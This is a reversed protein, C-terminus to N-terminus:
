SYKDTIESRWKLGYNNLREFIKSRQTGYGKDLIKPRMVGASCEPCRWLVEYGEEM